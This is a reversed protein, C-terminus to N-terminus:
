KGGTIPPVYSGRAFGAAAGLVILAISNVEPMSGLLLKNVVLVVLAVGMYGVFELFPKM